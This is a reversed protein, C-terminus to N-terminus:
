LKQWWKYLHIWQKKTKWNLHFFILLRFSSIFFHMCQSKFAVVSFCPLSFSFFLWFTNLQFSQFIPANVDFIIPLIDSLRVLEYNQYLPSYFDDSHLLQVRFFTLFIITRHLQWIIIIWIITYKVHFYFYLALIISSSKVLDSLIYKTWDIEM